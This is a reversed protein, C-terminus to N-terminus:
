RVYDAGKREIYNIVDSKKFRYSKTADPNTPILVGDKIRRGLTQRSIQLMEMVEESTLLRDEGIFKPLNKALYRMNLERHIVMNKKVLTEVRKELYEEIEKNFLSFNQKKM